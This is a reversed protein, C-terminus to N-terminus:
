RISTRMGRQELNIAFPDLKTGIGSAVMWCESKFGPENWDKQWTSDLSRRNPHILVDFHNPIPSGFFDKVAVLCHNILQTYEVAHGSDAASVLLNFGQGKESNWQQGFATLHTLAFM